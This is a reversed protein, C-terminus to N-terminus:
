PAMELPIWVSVSPETRGNPGLITEYNLTYLNRWQDVVIRAANVGSDDASSPTRALWVGNPNYIDLHYDSPDSGTGQYSLVYIFGKTEVGVDLYTIGTSVGDTLAMTAILQQVDLVATNSADPTIAFTRANVKDRLIWESNPAVVEVEFSPAHFVDLDPEMHISYTVQNGEDVLQWSVGPAVVTLQLSSSLTIGRSTFQALLDAPPAAGGVLESVIGAPLSFLLSSGDYVYANSETTITYSVNAAQDDLLWQAGPTVVIVALQNSLTVGYDAFTQSLSPSVNGQDLAAAFIAPVAFLEDGQRNVYLNRRIDFSLGSGQDILLWMADLRTTLIQFPGNASLPLANDAFEQRIGATLTAANLDDASTLPLSFLPALAPQVNQQYAQVFPASIRGSNLDSTFSADVTYTLLGAFCPVPNAMTDFAQIRANDQELVLVRGDPTVALAVPGQLLGERLGKGSFPVAVPADADDTASEPLQLILMKHYEYNVGIVYGNPHVVLGDLTAGAFAGWSTGPTYDFTGSGDDLSVQRLYCKQDSAYSRSDLYYNRPSFAPTPYAFVDITDTQRRLDYLPPQNPVGIYWEATTTVVTVVATSPLTFNGTGTGPSKSGSAPGNGANTFATVVDAPVAQGNAADLEPQYTAAPLTFLPAPGFQDYAINPQLSFGITPQKIGSEPNGLVSISQFAYMQGNQNTTGFDLPLNQGSAQYAYALTYALDNLTIDVLRCLTNGSDPCDDSGSWVDDPPFFTQQWAHQGGQYVLKQYHFYQTQATLPVLFEIIAGQLTLTTSGDPATAAVWASSWRGCLWDEVSYISATVQIQAGPAAAIATDGSFLM